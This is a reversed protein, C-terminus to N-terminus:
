ETKSLTINNQTFEFDFSDDLIDAPSLGFTSTFIPLMNARDSWHITSGYIQYNIARDTVYGFDKIQDKYARLVDDTLTANIQHNSSGFSIDANSIETM